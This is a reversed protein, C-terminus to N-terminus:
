AKRFKSANPKMFCPVTMPCVCVCVLLTPGWVSVHLPPMILLDTWSKWIHASTHLQSVAGWLLVHRKIGNRPHINGIKEMTPILWTPQRTDLMSKKKKKKPKTLFKRSDVLAALQQSCSCTGLAALFMDRAKLRNPNLCWPATKVWEAPM